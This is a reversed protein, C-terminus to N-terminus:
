MIEKIFEKVKQTSLKDAQRNQERPIWKVKSIYDLLELRLLNVEKFYPKLHPQRVKWTGNSQNIILQSDGYISANIISDPNQKVYARLIELAKKFALYEAVNNTGNTGEFGAYSLEESYDGNVYVAVGIGMYKFKSNNDCSGDFYLKIEAM